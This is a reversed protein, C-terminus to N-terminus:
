RLRGGHGSKQAASKGRLAFALARGVYVVPRTASYVEIM